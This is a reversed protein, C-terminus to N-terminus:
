ESFVCVVILEESIKILVKVKYSADGHRDFFDFLKFDQTSNEFDKFFISFRGGEARGIDRRPFKWDLLSEGLGAALYSNAGRTIIM